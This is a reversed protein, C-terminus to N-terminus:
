FNNKHIPKKVQPAKVGNRQVAELKQKLHRIVEQQEKFERLITEHDPMQAAQKELEKIKKAQQKNREAVVFAKRATHKKALKQKIATKRTKTEYELSEILRNLPQDRSSFIDAVIVGASGALLTSMGGTVFVDVALLTGTFTCGIGCVAGICSSKKFEKAKKKRRNKVTIHDKYQDRTTCLFEHVARLEQDSLSQPNLDELPALKEDLEEKLKKYDSKKFFM